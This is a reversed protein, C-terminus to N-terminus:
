PFILGGNIERSNFPILVLSTVQPAALCGNAFGDDQAQWPDPTFRINVRGRCDRRHVGTGEPSFDRLIVGNM